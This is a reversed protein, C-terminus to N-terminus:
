TGFEKTMKAKTKLQRLQRFFIYQGAFDGPSKLQHRIEANLKATTNCEV